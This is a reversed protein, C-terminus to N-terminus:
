AKLIRRVEHLEELSHRALHVLFKFVFCFISLDFLYDFSFSLTHHLVLIDSISCLSLKRLPLDSREKRLKVKNMNM